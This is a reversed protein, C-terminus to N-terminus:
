VQVPQQQQLRPKREGNVRPKTLRWGNKTLYLVFAKAVKKPVSLLEAVEERTKGELKAATVDVLLDRWVADQLTVVWANSPQSYGAVRNLHQETKESRNWVFWSLKREARHEEAPSFDLTRPRGVKRHEVRFWGSERM